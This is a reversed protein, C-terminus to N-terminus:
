IYNLTVLHIANYLLSAHFIICSVTSMCSSTLGLLILLLAQSPAMYAQSPAMYAQCAQHLPPNYGVSSSLLVRQTQNIM